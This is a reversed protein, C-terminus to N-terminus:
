VHELDIAAHGSASVLREKPVIMDTNYVSFPLENVTLVQLAPFPSPMSKKGQELNRVGYLVAGKM